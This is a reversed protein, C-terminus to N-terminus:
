RACSLLAEEFANGDIGYKQAVEVLHGRTSEIEQRLRERAKKDVDACQAASVLEGLEGFLQGVIAVGLSEGVEQDTIMDNSTKSIAVVYNRVASQFDSPCGGLSDALVRLRRETRVQLYELLRNVSNAVASSERRSVSQTGSSSEAAGGECGSSLDSIVGLCIIALLAVLVIGVVKLGKRFKDATGERKVVRIKPRSSPVKGAWGCSPCEFAEGVMDADAEFHQGCNPCAFKLSRNEAMERMTREHNM